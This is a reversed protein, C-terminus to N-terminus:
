RRGMLNIAGNTTKGECKRKLRFDNIVDETQKKHKALYLRWEKCKNGEECFQNYKVCSRCPAKDIKVKM